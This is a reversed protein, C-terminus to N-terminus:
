GNNYHYLSEFYPSAVHLCLYVVYRVGGLDQFM